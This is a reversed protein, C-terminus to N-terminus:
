GIGKGGEGGEADILRIGLLYHYGNSKRVEVNRRGLAARLQVATKPVATIEACHEVYLTYLLPSHIRDDDDLTVVLRRTIFDEISDAGFLLKADSIMQASQPFREVGEWHRRLAREAADLCMRLLEPLAHRLKEVLFPDRRDEPVINPTRIMMIRRELAVTAKGLRPIENTAVIHLAQPKLTSGNGGVRRANMEDGGIAAKLWKLENKSLSDLESLSNLRSGDLAARGYDTTLEDPSVSTRQSTPFLGGILNILVSKGNAGEGLLMLMMQARAGEGLLAFGVLEFLRERAIPDPITEELFQNLDDKAGEGYQYTVPAAVLTRFRSSHREVKIPDDRDELDLVITVDICTYAKRGVDFFSRAVYARSKMGSLLRSVTGGRKHILDLALDQIELDAVRAFVGRESNFCRFEGECYVLQRGHEKFAEMLATSLGAYDDHDIGATRDTFLRKIRTLDDPSLERDCDM